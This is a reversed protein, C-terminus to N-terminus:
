MVVAEAATSPLMHYSKLHGPKSYHHFMCIFIIYIVIIIIDHHIFTYM